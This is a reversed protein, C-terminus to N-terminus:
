KFRMKYRKHFKHASVAWFGSFLALKVSFKTFFFVEKQDTGNYYRVNELLTSVIKQNIKEIVIQMM